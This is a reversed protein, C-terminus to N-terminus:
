GQAGFSLKRTVWHKARPSLEFALLGLDRAHGLLQGPRTFLRVLGDTFHAGGFSDLRRERSYHQLAASDDHRGNGPTQPNLAQALGWADRLGLNFGQGAAPHLTQAANGLLVIRGSTVNDVTKLSLPFSNRATASLFRGQRDGFATHLERLFDAEPLELVRRAEAPPLTWVVAYGDGSPLLAIPGNRTFREYAVGQQPLETHVHALVATQQYDHSSRHIGPLHEISKGGDAVAAVAATLHWTAEDDTCTLSAFGSNSTLTSVRAGKLLEIEPHEALTAHLALDLASYDVVYGLADVNEESAHLQARGFGGQQSIHIHTIPTPAPLKQWVGLRELIIRSAQSLALARPDPSAQISHRAELVTVRRGSDCLALALTAGVPGGGIIAIDTHRDPNM